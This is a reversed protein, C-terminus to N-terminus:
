CRWQWTLQPGNSTVAAVCHEFRGSFCRHWHTHTQTQTQRNTGTHTLTHTHIHWDKTNLATLARKLVAVFASLLLAAALSM